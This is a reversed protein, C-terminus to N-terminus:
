SNHTMLHEALSAQKYKPSALRGAGRKMKAIAGISYPVRKKKGFITAM